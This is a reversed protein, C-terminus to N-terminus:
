SAVAPSPRRFNWRRFLAHGGLLTLIVTAEVVAAAGAPVGADRQMATAGAALGGLLIASWALHVPRLGALLAVAIATYGYGPSLNEYLAYTVGLVEVGGAIGALVGSTLFAGLQVRRVNIEGAIAAAQPNSGVARIRFGSETREILLWALIFAVVALVIGAHLRSGPIMIPLHTGAPLSASQPYVGTPEQLPGRVLYSVLFAAVFNMMITSVVELTGFRARLWAPLATWVGGAAGSVLLAIVMSMPGPLRMALTVAAAAVAGALFQGDGGLNIIGARLAILIGSGLLLLPVARVLTASVVADSTGAAGRWMSVLAPVVPFGAVLLVLGLVTVAAAGM